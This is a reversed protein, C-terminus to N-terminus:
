AGRTAVTWAAKDLDVPIAVYGCFLTHWAIGVYVADGREFIFLATGQLSAEAAANVTRLYLLVQDQATLIRVPIGREKLPLVVQETFLDLSVCSPQSSLPTQFQVCTCYLAGILTVAWRAAARKFCYNESAM